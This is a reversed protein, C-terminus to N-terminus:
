QAADVQLPLVAWSPIAAELSANGAGVLIVAHAGASTAALALAAKQQGLEAWASRTEHGAEDRAVVRVLVRNASRLSDARFVTRGNADTARLWVAPGNSGQPASSPDLVLTAAGDLTGVHQLNAAASQAGNGGAEFGDRFIVIQTTATATNNSTSGDGATDVSVQDIITEDPPSALVAASLVYTVSGGAPISPTDSLNGTGSATCTAGATHAFCIWSASAADLEAPLNDTVMNNATSPGLNNVVIVYDVTSGYQAYAPASSFSVALDFNAAVTATFTVPAGALTTSGNATVTESSATGFTWGGLTAIGNADTAPNAGSVFGSDAGPAFIVGYGSVPNGYTDTVVVSPLPTAGTGAAGSLSISSNAAINAAAAAAVTVTESSAAYSVQTDVGDVSAMVTVPGSRISTFQLATTSNYGSAVPFGTGPPGFSGCLDNTGCTTLPIPAFGSGTDYELTVDGPSLGGPRSLEFDVLVNEILASGTNSLQATYGATPTGAVTSAPGNLTLAVSSVANIYETNAISGDVIDVTPETGRTNHQELGSISHGLGDFSNNGCVTIPQYGSNSTDDFVNIGTLQTGPTSTESFTNGCIFVRQMTTGPRARITIGVQNLTNSSGNDAFTSNTVEFGDIASGAGGTKLWIGGGFGTADANDNSLFQSGDISWDTIQGNGSASAGFLIIGAANNSFTSGTIALHGVHAATATRIGAGTNSDFLSGSIVVDDSVGAFNLGTGGNAAFAVQEFALHSAAGIGVADGAANSLRLNQLLLPDANSAGSVSLTVAGSIVTDSATNGDGILQVPHSGIAIAAPYTGKAVCVRGGSQVQAVAQAVTAFANVGFYVTQDGCAAAASTFNLADGYGSGIFDDDVYAIALTPTIGYDVKGLAPNAAKDYTRALLDNQQSADMAAPALGAYTNNAADINGAFPRVETNPLTGVDAYDLFDCLPGAGGPTLGVASTNTSCSYDDLHFYERLNGDFVNAEGSGMGGFVLAGFTATGSADNDDLFEVATGANAVSSGDFANGTATLAMPYPAEPPNDTNIEKNSVVLSVFSSASAAPTFTNGTLTVGPFNEILVGRYTGTHGQFTNGTVSVPINQQNDELRVLSWDAPYTTSGDIGAPASIVNNSIVVGTTGANPADFELGRGDLINSDITVSNASSLGVVTAFRVHIDQTGTAITNNSITGVGADMNVGARLFIGNALNGIGDIVNGDIMVASGDVRPLSQSNRVDNISIANRYGFTSNAASSRSSGFHNNVITLGDVFGSALIGEAVFSQDMGFDLNEVRVNKAGNIVMLPQNTGGSIRTLLPKNGPDEGVLQLGDTVITLPAIYTGAAINITDAAVSQAVAYAITQCPSAQLSCDGSDTGAPAVWREGAITARSPTSALALLFFVAFSWLAANRRSANVLRM